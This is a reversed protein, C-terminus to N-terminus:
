ARVNTEHRRIETEFFRYQGLFLRVADLPPINEVHERPGTVTAVISGGSEVISFSLEQRESGEGWCYCASLMTPTANHDIKELRLLDRARATEQEFNM